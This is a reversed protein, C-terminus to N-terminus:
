YFVLFRLRWEKSRCPRGDLVCRVSYLGGGFNSGERGARCQIHHEARSGEGGDKGGLLGHPLVARDLDHLRGIIYQRVQRSFHPHLLYRVPRPPPLREEPINYRRGRKSIKLLCSHVRLDPCPRPPHTPAHACSPPIAPSPAFCGGVFCPVCRIM